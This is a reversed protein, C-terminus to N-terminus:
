LHFCFQQNNKKFKIFMIITLEIIGIWIGVICGVWWPAFIISSVVSFLFLTAANVVVAYYSCKDRGSKDKPTFKDLARKM